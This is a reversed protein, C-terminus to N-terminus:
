RVYPRIENMRNINTITNVDNSFVLMDIIRNCLLLDNHMVDYFAMDGILRIYLVYM